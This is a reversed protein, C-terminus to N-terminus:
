NSKEVIRLLEKRMDKFTNWLNIDNEDSIKYQQKIMLQLELFFGNLRRDSRILRNLLTKSNKVPPVMEFFWPPVVGSKIRRSMFKSIRSKEWGMSKFLRIWKRYSDVKLFYLNIDPYLSEFLSLRNKEILNNGGFKRLPFKIFRLLYLLKKFDLGREKAIQYVSKGETLNLLRGHLDESFEKKIEKKFSKIKNNFVQRRNVDLTKGHVAGIKEAVSILIEYNRKIENIAKCKKQSEKTAPSFVDIISKEM